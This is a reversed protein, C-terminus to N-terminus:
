PAMLGSEVSQQHGQGVWIWGTRTVKEKLKEIHVNEGLNVTAGFKFGLKIFTETVSGQDSSRMPGM